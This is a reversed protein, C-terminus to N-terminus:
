WLLAAIASQQLLLQQQTPADFPLRTCVLYPNDPFGYFGWTANPRLSASLKLTEALFNVAAAEFVAVAEAYIESATWTPHAAAVLALSLNQHHISHYGCNTDINASWTPSWAEFDFVANGGWARDPLWADIHDRIYQLHLSLNAAQPVGGNLLDGGCTIQPFPPGWATCNKQTCGSGTQSVNNASILFPTPDQTFSVDNMFVRYRACGPGLPGLAVVCSSLMLLVALRRM